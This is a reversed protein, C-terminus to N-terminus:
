GGRLARTVGRCVATTIDPYVENLDALVGSPCAHRRHVASAVVRGLELTQHVAVASAVLPLSRVRATM